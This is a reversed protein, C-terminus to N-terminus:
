FILVFGLWYLVASVGLKRGIGVDSEDGAQAEM